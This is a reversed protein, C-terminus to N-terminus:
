KMKDYSEKVKALSEQMSQLKARESQVVEPSANNVFKENSLKRQSGNIKNELRSIEKALRELEKEKDISGETVIFIEIERIVSKISNDSIPESPNIDLTSAKACAISHKVDFFAVGNLLINANSANSKIIFLM